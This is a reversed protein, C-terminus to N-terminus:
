HMSILANSVKGLRSSKAKCCDYSTSQTTVRSPLFLPWHGRSVQQWCVCVHKRDSCSSLDRFNAAFSLMAAQTFYRGSQSKLLLPLPSFVLVFIDILYTVKCSRQDQSMNLEVCPNRNWFNQSLIFMCTTGQTKNVDSCHNSKLILYLYM